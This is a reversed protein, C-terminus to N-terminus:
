TMDQLLQHALYTNVLNYKKNLYTTLFRNEKHSLARDFFIVEGVLGDFPYSKSNYGGLAMGVGSGPSRMKNTKFYSYEIQQDNIVTKYRSYVDHKTNDLM